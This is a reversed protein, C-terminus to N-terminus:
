SAIRVSRPMCAGSIDDFLLSRLDNPPSEVMFCRYSDLSLSNNVLWCKM